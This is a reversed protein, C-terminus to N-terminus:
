EVIQKEEEKTLVTPSGMRREIPTRGAVKDCLTTVPVNHLKAASNKSMNNILVDDIAANM